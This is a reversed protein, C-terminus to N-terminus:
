HRAWETLAAKLIMMGGILGYVRLRRKWVRSM